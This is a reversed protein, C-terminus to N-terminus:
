PDSASVKQTLNNDAAWCLTAGAVLLPGSLGGLQARGEWSLVVGGTVIALMGLAIRRDFNERFVFWALLATFVGELNLLLSAASADTSTLGTMLAIPGIVGGAIVAGALWPIDAVPVHAARGARLVFWLGLGIGSGAYLLGALM